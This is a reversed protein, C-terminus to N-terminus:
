ERPASCCQSCLPKVLPYDICAACRHVNQSSRLYIDHDDVHPATGWQNSLSSSAKTMEAAISNGIGYATAGHADDGDDLYPRPDTDINYLQRKPEFRVPFDPPRGLAAMDPRIGHYQKQLSSGM